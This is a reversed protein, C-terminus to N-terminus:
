PRSAALKHVSDVYWELSKLWQWGQDTRQLYGNQMLLELWVTAVTTVIARNDVLPTLASTVQEHWFNQNMERSIDGGQFTLLWKARLQWELTRLGILATLHEHVLWPLGSMHKGQAYAMQQLAMVQRERYHLANDILRVIKQHSQAVRVQRMHMPGHSFRQVEFYGMRAQWLELFSSGDSYWLHYGHTEDWRLFKAQMNGPRQSYYHPGLIWIVELGISAYGKTREKLRQPKLPSCQFELILTRDAKQWVVDARQRIEPYYVELTVAYGLQEGLQMLWQKGQLHITSEGESDVDCAPGIHAFHAPMVQGNKIRVPERCAPCLYTGGRLQEAQQHDVLTIRKEDTTMAVFM